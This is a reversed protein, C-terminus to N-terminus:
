PNMRGILAEVKPRWRNMVERTEPAFSDPDEGMLRLAMTMCDHELEGIQTAKAKKIAARIIPLTRDSSEGADFTALAAYCAALLGANIAELERVSDAAAAILKAIAATDAVAYTSGDVRKVSCGDVYLKPKTAMTM